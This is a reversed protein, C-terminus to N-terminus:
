PTTFPISEHDLLRGGEGEEEAEGEEGRGSVGEGIGEEKERKGRKRTTLIYNM